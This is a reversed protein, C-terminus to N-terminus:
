TVITSVSSEINITREDSTEYVSECNCSNKNVFIDWLSM